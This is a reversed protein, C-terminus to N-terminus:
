ATDAECEGAMMALFLTMALLDACGGASLRRAVFRHHLTVAHERWGPQGVGGRDLFARAAAQAFALGEAGGRHLLTTDQVVALLAFLCQIRAAEADDPVRHRGHRWAPLGVAYLTEFGNAAELRAGGARFRRLADSGHSHLPIPGERIADGWLARVIGGLEGAAGGAARAGAAACLLGLGFIAGRHTNVGATVTAMAAEAEMGIERLRRMPADDAGAQALRVLFPQIADASARFSACDMDGHSGSDIPSVLGPKPYTDLELLLARYALAGIRAADVTDGARAAPRPLAAASLM